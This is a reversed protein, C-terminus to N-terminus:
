RGLRGGSRAPADGAPADKLADFWGTSLDKLPVRHPQAPDDTVEVAAIRDLRFTRLGGALHCWAELYAYGELVFVRLPDVRRRTTEGRAAGDYTLELQSGRQLGDDILAQVDDRGATVTVTARDTAPVNGAAAELKKLARDIVERRGPGAIERVTRLALM